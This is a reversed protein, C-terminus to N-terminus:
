ISRLPWAAKSSWACARVRTRRVSIGDDARDSLPPVSSLDDTCHILPHLPNRLVQLHPVCLPPSGMSADASSEGLFRQARDYDETSSRIHGHLAVRKGAPPALKFARELGAVLSRRCPRLWPRSAKRWSLKLSFIAWPSRMCYLAARSMAGLEDPQDRSIEGSWRSFAWGSLVRRALCSPGDYKSRSAYRSSTDVGAKTTKELVSSKHTQM